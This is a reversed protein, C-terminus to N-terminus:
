NKLHGYNAKIHKYVYVDRRVTCRTQYAKQMAKNTMIERLPAHAMGVVDYCHHRGDPYKGSSLAVLSWPSCWEAKIDHSLARMIRAGM